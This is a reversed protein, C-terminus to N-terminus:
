RRRQFTELLSGFETRVLTGPNIQNRKFWGQKMELVFQVDATKSPVPEENLPQLDHIELISGDSSIYAASLPVVTNKMYFTAQHPRAFVFLMGENEGMDKRYMMGTSVETITSAVEAEVVQPGVWLKVSKLRPM